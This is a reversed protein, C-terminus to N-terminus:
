ELSAEGRQLTDITVWLPPMSKVAGGFKEALTSTEVCLPEIFVSKGMVTVPCTALLFSVPVIPVPWPFSWRSVCLPAIFILYGRRIVAAM